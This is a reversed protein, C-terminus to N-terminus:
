RIVKPLCDLLETTRVFIQGSERALYEAACGHILVGMMAASFVDSNHQALRAGIIGALLDGSGGRSLIPGGRTSYILQEGNCIRTMPGKLVLTVGMNKILSLFSQASLNVSSLKSVRLFEGMHPTLIIQNPASLKRKQISELVRPVLADADLVLPIHARNILQQLVLETDRSKGLGPGAVIATAHNIQSLILDGAESNITGARTEPLSIWMAEPAQGCLAPVISGPAFATVLGAGSQIAAQVTMLLAGPMWRSGGLIFVHGFSRKEVNAPRLKSLRKLYATTLYFADHDQELISPDYLGIDIFRVRGLDYNPNFFIKKATGAMYSFDPRFYYESESALAETNAEAKSAESLGSPIDISARLDIREYSNICQVIQSVPERLPPKFGLGLLGDLCLNISGFEAALTDLISLLLSQDFTGTVFHIQVRGEVEQLAKQTLPDLKEEESTLLVLVNARPLFRMLYDCTLLCDGGNKGKGVLALISLNEPVPKLERFDNLLEGATKEGVLQMASYEADADKLKRKELSLSDAHDLIPVTHTHSHTNLCRSKNRYKM